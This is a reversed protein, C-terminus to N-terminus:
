PKSNAGYHVTAPPYYTKSPYKVTLGFSQTKTPDACSEQIKMKYHWQKFFDDYFPLYGEAFRRVFHLPPPKSWGSHVGETPPSRDKPPLCAPYIRHKGPDQLGTDNVKFVAIDSGGGPGQGEADFAPSQIIEVIPLVVNYEEGSANQSTSDTQWEGCIIEVDSGDMEVAKPDPGCKVTDASCSEQGKNSTVCCCSPLTVGNNDTDKCLYTCHAAGVIVTPNPPVGLLNVACLHESNVGRTRLSCIWPYRHRTNEYNLETKIDSTVEAVPALRAQEMRHNSRKGLQNQTSTISDYLEKSCSYQILLELTNKVIEPQKELFEICSTAKLSEETEKSCTGSTISSPDGGALDCDNGLENIGWINLVEAPNDGTKCTGKSTVDEILLSFCSSDDESMTNSFCDRLCEPNTVAQGSVEPASIIACDWWCEDQGGTTIGCMDHNELKPKLPPNLLSNALLLGTFAFGLVIAVAFINIEAVALSISNGIGQRDAVGQFWLRPDLIGNGEERSNREDTWLYDYEQPYPLEGIAEEGGVVDFFGPDSAM